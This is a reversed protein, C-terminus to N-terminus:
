LKRREQKILLLMLHCTYPLVNTHPFCVLAGFVWFLDSPRDRATKIGYLSKFNSTAVATRKGENDVKNGGGRMM